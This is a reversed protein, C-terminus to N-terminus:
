PRYCIATVFVNSLTGDAAKDVRIEAMGYEKSFVLYSRYRIAVLFCRSRLFACCVLIISLKRFEAFEHEMCQVNALSIVRKM